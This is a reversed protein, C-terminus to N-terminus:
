VKWGAKSLDVRQGIPDLIFEEAYRGDRPLDYTGRRAGGALAAERVAEVDEVEFGLHNIGDPHGAGEKGHNPLIALNIYGDSLYVAGKEWPRRMVEHMGFTRAYFEALKPPDETMIAIHRIRPM